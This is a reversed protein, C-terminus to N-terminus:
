YYLKKPRTAQQVKVLANRFATAEQILANVKAIRKDLHKYKECSFELTITKGCDSLYLESEVLYYEDEPTKVYWRVSGGEDGRATLFRKGQAKMIM